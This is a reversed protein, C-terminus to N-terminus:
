RFLVTFDRSRGVVNKLTVEDQFDLDPNRGEDWVDVEVFTEPSEGNGIAGTYSKLLAYYAEIAAEAAAVTTAYVELQIRSQRFGVTGVDHTLDVPPESIIHYVTAPYLPNKPLGNQYIHPTIAAAKLIRYVTAKISESM